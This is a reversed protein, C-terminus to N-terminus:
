YYYDDLTYTIVPTIHLKYKEVLDALAQGDILTVTNNGQTAKKKAQNTFHSTTMFIGYEANFGDMVGKFKDIEPESVAGQTYRKCQVAVRSTRFEDSTFYGFGDIGHDGSRVIGMEKDIVVGMKSILLRSFSEFKAPEFEMLCKLLESKWNLDDTDEKEAADNTGSAEKTKRENNKQSKKKWFDAIIKEQKATPYNDLNDTRGLDTLTIDKGRELKEVYGVSYLSKMGFNFDFMFPSYSGTKGMKTSYVDNYKIGCYENDSITKRISKRNAVGGLDRLAMIISKEVLTRKSEM